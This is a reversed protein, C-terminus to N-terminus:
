KLTFIDVTTFKLSAFINFSM